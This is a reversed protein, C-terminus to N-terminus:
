TSRPLHHAGVRRPCPLPSASRSGTPSGSMTSRPFSFSRSSWPSPPRSPSVSPRTALAQRSRCGTRRHSGSGVLSCRCSLLRDSAVVVSTIAVARWAAISPGAFECTDASSDLICPYASSFLVFLGPVLFVSVTAVTRSRDRDRRRGRPPAEGIAGCIQGAFMIKPKAKLLHATRLDGLMDSSQGAAAGSVCGSLQCRVTLSPRPVLAAVARVM